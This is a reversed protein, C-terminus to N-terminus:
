HQPPVRVCRFGNFRFRVEPVFVDRRASRLREPPNGFSGGRLVRGGSSFTRPGEPDIFIGAEYMDYGDRVWEWANGHMDYLGLPNPRKQKVDHARGGSNEAF